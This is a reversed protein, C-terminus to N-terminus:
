GASDSCSGASPETIRLSELREPEIGLAAAMEQRMSEELALRDAATQPMDIALELELQAECQQLDAPAM